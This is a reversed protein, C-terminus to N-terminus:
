SRTTQRPTRVADENREVRRGVESTLEVRPLGSKLMLSQLSM